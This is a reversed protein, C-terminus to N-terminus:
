LKLIKTLNGWFQMSPLCEVLACLSGLGYSLHLSFFIIPLLPLLKMKKERSAIQISFYFNSLPYLVVILLFAVFIFPCSFSLLGLVMLSLVFVLPIYHRLSVPNVNTYKLPLIAWMGNVFSHKIFRKFDSRAYYHGVIDPALLIKLGARRLRKNFEMDQGRALKENFLGIREFVEKKCCFFPVSDVWRPEKPGLRYHANGIGFSHTLVCVIGKGIITDNTPITNYVGGVLDANFEELYKVCKEVYDSGLASHADIRIILDSKAHKIGINWGSALIHKTNDLLRAGIDNAQLEGVKQTLWEKTGDTSMGDVVIIETFKNPYTQNLLSELSREIYEIENRVVIILTVFPPKNVVQM